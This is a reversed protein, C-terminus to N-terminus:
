HKVITELGWKCAIGMPLLSSNPQSFGLIRSRVEFQIDQVIMSEVKFLQQHFRRNRELWTHYIALMSSLQQWIRRTYSCKFFLHENTEPSGNCLICTDSITPTWQKQRARTSLRNLVALWSIFSHKPIAQSFWVLRHWIKRDQRRRLWHWTQGIKFSGSTSPVWVVTDKEGEQPYIDFLHMQIQVLQPCRAPPWQWFSGNIVSALKAQYPLRADRVISTGYVELLPGSPHWFDHWVYIDKGDGPVHQIFRRALQRLNLIKRWGWSADAPLNITWFSRGKLLYEHVWAVWISGAKSFLLWIFKLICAQNWQVLNKLGLGGEQKPSCVTNWNVKAGRATLVSNNWLFAGCIKEVEKIVAKPLIFISCWFNTIGRLM